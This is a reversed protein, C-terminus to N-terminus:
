DNRRSSNLALVDKTNSGLSDKIDSLDISAIDSTPVRILPGKKSNTNTISGSGISVTDVLSEDNTKALSNSISGLVSIGGGVLHDDNTNHLYLMQEDISHRLDSVSRVYGKRLLPQRLPGSQSKSLKIPIDIDKIFKNKRSTRAIKTEAYYEPDNKPGIPNRERRTKVLDILDAPNPENYDLPPLFKGDGIKTRQQKKKKGPGSLDHTKRVFEIEAAISSAVSSSTNARNTSYEASPANFSSTSKKKPFLMSRLEEELELEDDAQMTLDYQAQLQIAKTHVVNKLDSYMPPEMGFLESSFHKQSSVSSDLVDNMPSPELLISGDRLDYNQISRHPLNLSQSEISLSKVDTDVPQDKEELFYKINDTSSTLVLPQQSGVVGGLGISKASWTSKGKLNLDTMDTTKPPSVASMHSFFPKGPHRGTFEQMTLVPAHSVTAHPTSLETVSVPRSRPDELWSKNENFLRGGRTLPEDDVSLAFNSQVSGSSPRKDISSDRSFSDLVPTSGRSNGSRSRTATVNFGVPSMESNNDNGNEIRDYECAEYDNYEDIDEPLNVSVGAVGLIAAYAQELADDDDDMMDEFVRQLQSVRERRTASMVSASVGEASGVRSVPTPVRQSYAKVGDYFQSHANRDSIDEDYKAYGRVTPVLPENNKDRLLAGDSQSHKPFHEDSKSELSHANNTDIGNFAKDFDLSDSGAINTLGIDRQVSSIPEGSVSMPRSSLNISGSAIERTKQEEELLTLGARIYARQEKRRKSTNNIVQHMTARSWTLIPRLSGGRGEPTLAFNRAVAVDEASMLASRVNDEFIQLTLNSLRKRRTDVMLPSDSGHGSEPLVSPSDHEYLAAFNIDSESSGYLHNTDKTEVLLASDIEADQKSVNKKKGKKKKPPTIPRALVGRTNKGIGRSKSSSSTMSLEREVMELLTGFSAQSADKELVLSPHDDAFGLSPALRKSLTSFVDALEHDVLGGITFHHGAKSLPSREFNKGNLKLHQFQGSDKFDTNKPLDGTAPPKVLTWHGGANVAVSNDPASQINQAKLSPSNLMRRTQVIHQQANEDMLIDTVNPMELYGGESELYGRHANHEPANRKFEIVNRLKAAENAVAAAAESAPVQQSIRVFSVPQLASGHSAEDNLNMDDDEEDLEEKSVHVSQEVLKAEFPEVESTQAASAPKERGKEEECSLVSINDEEDDTEIKKQLNEPEAENNATIPLIFEDYMINKEPILRMELDDTYDSNVVPHTNVSSQESDNIDLSPEAANKLVEYAAEINTNSITDTMLIDDPKPVNIALVGEGEMAALYHSTQDDHQQQSNISGGVSLEDDIPDDAAVDPTGRLAEETGNLAAADYDESIQEKLQSTQSIISMLDDEDSNEGDEKRRIISARMHDIEIKGVAIFPDEAQKLIKNPGKKPAAKGEAENDAAKEEDTRMDIVADRTNKSAAKVVKEPTPMSKGKKAALFRSEALKETKISVSMKSQNALQWAEDGVEIDCARPAMPSFVYQALHSNSDEEENPRTRRGDMHQDGIELWMRTTKGLPADMDYGSSDVDIEEKEDESPPSPTGNVDKAEIRQPIILEWYDDFLQSRMAHSLLLAEQEAILLGEMEHALAQAEAEDKAQQLVSNTNGIANPDIVNLDASAIIQEDASMRALAEDHESGPFEKPAIGTGASGGLQPTHLREYDDARLGDFGPSGLSSTVINLPTTPESNKERSQRSATQRRSRRNPSGSNERDKKNGGGSSKFDQRTKPRNREAEALAEAALRLREAELELHESLESVANGHRRMGSLTRMDTVGSHQIKKEDRAMRMVMNQSDLMVNFEGEAMNKLWTHGRMCLRDFMKVDTEALRKKEVLEVINAEATPIEAEKMEVLKFARFRLAKGAVEPDAVAAELEESRVDVELLTFAASLNNNNLMGEVKVIVEKIHRLEQQAEKIKREARVVKHKIGSKEELDHAIKERRKDGIKLIHKRVDKLFDQLDLRNEFIDKKITEDLAMKRKIIDKATTVFVLELKTRRQLLNLEWWEPPLWSWILADLFLPKAVASKIIWSALCGSSTTLDIPGQDEMGESKMLALVRRPINAAQKCRRAAMSILHDKTMHKVKPRRTEIICQGLVSCREQFDIEATQDILEEPDRLISETYGNHFSIPDYIQLQEADEDAPDEDIEVNDETGGRRGKKGKKGKKRKKKAKKDKKKGKKKLPSTNVGETSNLSQEALELEEGSLNALQEMHEEMEREREARANEELLEKRLTSEIKKARKLAKEKAKKALKEEKSKQIQIQDPTMCQQKLDLYDRRSQALFAVELLKKDRSLLPLRLARAETSLDITMKTYERLLQYINLSKTWDDNIKAPVQPPCLIPPSPEYKSFPMDEARLADPLQLTSISGLLTRNHQSFPHMPVKDDMSDGWPTIAGLMDDTSLLGAKSEGDGVEIVNNSFATLPKVDANTEMNEPMLLIGTLSKRISMLRELKRRKLSEKIEEDMTREPALQLCTSRLRAEARAITMLVVIRFLVVAQYNSGVVEAIVSDRTVETMERTTLDCRNWRDIHSSLLIANLPNSCTLLNDHKEDATICQAIYQTGVGLLMTFLPMHSDGFYKCAQIIHDTAIEAGEEIALAVLRMDLVDLGRQLKIQVLHFAKAEDFEKKQDHSMGASLSSDDDLSAETKAVSDGDDGPEVDRDQIDEDSRMQRLKVVEMISTSNNMKFKKKEEQKRKYEQFAQEDEDLSDNDNDFDDQNEESMESGDDSGIDKSLALNQKAEEAKLYPELLLQRRSRKKAASICIARCFLVFSEKDLTEVLEGKQGHIFKRSASVLINPLLGSQPVGNWSKSPMVVVTAPRSSPSGPSGPSGPSELNSALDDFVRASANIDLNHTLSTSPRISSNPRGREMRVLSKWAQFIAHQRNSFWLYRYKWLSTKWQCRNKWWLVWRRWCDLMIVHTNLGMFAYACVMVKRDNVNQRLIRLVGARRGIVDFCQDTMESFVTRKQRMNLWSNTDRKLIRLRKKRPAWGKWASFCKNRLRMITGREKIIGSWGGFVKTWVKLNWHNIAIQLPTVLKSKDMTMIVQWTRFTRTILLKEGKEQARKRHIRNLTISSLLKSWQPLHPNKFQPDPEDRRYAFRVAAYRRWIHFTVLVGEKVWMPGKSRRMTRALIQSAKYRMGRLERVESRWGMFLKSLILRRIKMQDVDSMAVSYEGQPAFFAMVAQPTLRLRRVCLVYFAKVMEKLRKTDEVEAAWAEFPKGLIQYLFLHEAKWHQKWGNYYKRKIALRANRFARFEIKFTMMRWWSQIKTLMRIADLFGRVRAVAIEQRHEEEDLLKQRHEDQWEKMQNIDLGYDERMVKEVKLLTDEQKQRVKPAEVPKQSMNKMLNSMKELIAANQVKMDDIKSQEEDIFNETEIDGGSEFAFPIVQDSFAFVSQVDVDLASAIGAITNLDAPALTSSAYETNLIDSSHNTTIPGTFADKPVPVNGRQDNDAFKQDM